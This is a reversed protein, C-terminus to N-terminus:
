WQMVYQAFTDANMDELKAGNLQQYLYSINKSTSRTETKPTRVNTTPDVAWCGGIIHFAEHILTKAMQEVKGNLLNINISIAYENYGSLGYTGAICMPYIQLTDSNLVNLVAQAYQALPADPNGEDKWAQMTNNLHQRANTFGDAVTKWFETKEEENSWEIEEGSYTTNNATYLQIINDSQYKSQEQIIQSQFTHSPTFCAMDETRCEDYGMVNSSSPAIRVDEKESINIHRSQKPSFPSEKKQVYQRQSEKQKKISSYM